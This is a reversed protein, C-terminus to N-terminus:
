FKVVYVDHNVASLSLYSVRDGFEQALDTKIKPLLFETDEIIVQHGATLLARCVKLQHSEEFMAVGKKYSVHDFYFPRREPNDQQLWQVLFEVHSENFSDILLGLPYDMDLRQAYHVFARNDRPYCPGGYGFGFSWRAQKKVFNLYQNATDLDHRLSNRLLVQGIMNMFSIEMTSRCNGALKLIEATLADMVYIPTDPTIVREFLNRCVECADKHRSGLSMTHPDRINQMVSGQAAFTPCYVVSVGRQALLDQLRDCDGPNV